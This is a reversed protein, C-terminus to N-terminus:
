RRVNLSYDTCSQTEVDLEWQVRALEMVHTKAPETREQEAKETFM